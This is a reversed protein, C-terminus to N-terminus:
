VEKIYQKYNNFDLDKFKIINEKTSTRFYLDNNKRGQLPSSSFFAEHYLHIAIPDEIFSKKLGLRDIRLLFEDDDFSHDDKFREDFGGLAHLNNKTVATLFHYHKPRWQRHNYWIIFGLYPNENPHLVNTSNLIPQMYDKVCAINPQAYLGESASENLAITHASLYKTDDLTEDIVKLIDGMHYTEPNQIVIKDGTAKSFAINYAVCPNFWTKKDKEIELLIVNGNSKDKLEELDLRHSEISADDVIILEYDKISSENISEITKFLQKKRNLYAM